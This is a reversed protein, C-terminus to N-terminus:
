AVAIKHYVYFSGYLFNSNLLHLRVNLLSKLIPKTALVTRVNGM